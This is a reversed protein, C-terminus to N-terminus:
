KQRVYFKKAVVLGSYDVATYVIEYVYGRKINMKVQDVNGELVKATQADNLATLLEGGDAQANKTGDLSYVNTVGVLKKYAPALVEATYSTPALVLEGSTVVTPVSRSQSLKNFGNNGQVLLVPQIAANVSNIMNCVKANFKDFFKALLVKFEDNVKIAVNEVVPLKDKLVANAKDMLDLLEDITGSTINGYLDNMADYLNVEVPYKFQVPIQMEKTIHIDKLILSDGDVTYQPAAVKVTEEPFSITEEIETYGVGPLDRMVTITQERAPITVEISDETEPTIQGFKISDKPLVMDLTYDVTTNVDVEIVLKTSSPSLPLVKIKNVVINEVKNFLKDVTAGSPVLKVFVDTVKDTVKGIINEVKELTPINKIDVDAFKYSLPKFATAAVSYQSYVSRQQGLDDTWSVKVANADMKGNLQSALSTLTNTVNFDTLADGMIENIDVRGKLSEVAEATLTAKAEYFGNAASRSVGFSLNKDSYALPELKIASAQEVSNVLPFQAGEFNVTNPNITLYLTGANGAGGVLPEGAAVEIATVGLMKIDASSLRADDQDSYYRPRATPFELGYNGAYGYYAALINSRMNNPLAAYGFVPSSAGQVLIGSVYQNLAGELNKIKNEVDAVRTTLEDLQEQLAKDAEQYAKEIEGVAIQLTDIRNNADNFKENLVKFIETQLSDAYAKAAEYNAAIQNVLASDAKELAAIKVQADAVDQMVKELKADWLQIDNKINTIATEHNNLQLEHAALISDHSAVISDHKHQLTAIAQTAIENLEFLKALQQEVDAPCICEGAPGQPGAPGEPGQPGAPGQEGDKGDEGDQGDKGDEGDQGDKGDEGDQGPAGPQGQQNPDCTCGEEAELAAIRSLLAAIQGELDEVEDDLNGKLEERLDDDADKYAEELAELDKKYADELDSLDKKLADIQDNVADELTKDADIMEEHLDAYMDETKDDCSVFSLSTVVVAAFAMLGNFFKKKM